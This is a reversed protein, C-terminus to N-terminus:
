KRRKTKKKRNIQKAMKEGKNRLKNEEYAENLLKKSVKLSVSKEKKELVALKM